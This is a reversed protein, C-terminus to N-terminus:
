EFIVEPFGLDRFLRDLYSEANQSALELIGDELASKEIEIEAARRAESELNVEGQTLLGTERDYVYSKENDIAVVFIEAEPLQVYLIGDRVELKEPELKGLDIGAIIEGHAVFILRDGVM